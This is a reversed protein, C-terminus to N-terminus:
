KIFDSKKICLKPSENSRELVFPVNNVQTGNIKINLNVTAVGNQECLNMHVMRDNFEIRGTGCADKIAEFDEVFFINKDSDVMEFEFQPSGSFSEVMLSNVLEVKATEVKTDCACTSSECECDESHDHKEKKEKLVFNSEELDLSNFFDLLETTDKFQM